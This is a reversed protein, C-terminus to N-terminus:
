ALRVAMTTISAEFGEEETENFNALSFLTEWFTIEMDPTVKNQM